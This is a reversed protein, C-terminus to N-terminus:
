RTFAFRIRSLHASGIHVCKTENPAHEEEKIIASILRTGFLENPGFSHDSVPRLSSALKTGGAYLHTYGAFAEASSFLPDKVSGLCATLFFYLSCNKKVFYWRHRQQFTKKEKKMILISFAFAYMTTNKIMVSSYIMTWLFIKSSEFINSPFHFLICVCINYIYIYFVSM